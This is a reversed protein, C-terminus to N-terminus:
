CKEFWELVLGLNIEDFGEISERAAAIGNALASTPQTLSGSRILQVPPEKSTSGGCCCLRQLISPKEVDEPGSAPPSTTTAVTM